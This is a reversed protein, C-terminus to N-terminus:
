RQMASLPSLRTALPHPLVTRLAPRNSQYLTRPPNTRARPTFSHVPALYSLQYLLPSFIRTDATRNRGQGSFLFESARVSGFFPSWRM